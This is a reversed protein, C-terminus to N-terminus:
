ATELQASFVASSAASATIATQAAGAVVDQVHIRRDIGIADADDVVPDVRHLVRRVRVGVHELAVPHVTLTRRDNEDAPDRALLADVQKVALDEAVAEIVVQSRVLEGLETAVELRLEVPGQLRGKDVLRAVRGRIATVAQGAVGPVADYLIVPHGAVAAVQAIGAGMTGAGIVAVPAARDIM